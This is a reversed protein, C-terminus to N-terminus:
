GLSFSPMNSKIKDYKPSYSGVGPNKLAEKIEPL